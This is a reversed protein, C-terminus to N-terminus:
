ILSAAAAAVQAKKSKKGKGKGGKSSTKASAEANTDPSFGTSARGFMKGLQSEAPSRPSEAPSRRPKKTPSSTTAPATEEVAKKKLRAKQTVVAPAAAEVTAEKTTSTKAAGASSTGGGGAAPVSPIKGATREAPLPPSAADSGAGTSETEAVEVQVQVEQPASVAAEEEINVADLLETDAESEKSADLELPRMKALEPQSEMVQELIGKVKSMALNNVKTIQDQHKVMEAQMGEVEAVAQTATTRAAALMSAELIEKFQAQMEATGGMAALKGKAEDLDSESLGVDALKTKARELIQIFAEKFAIQASASETFTNELAKIMKLQPLVMVQVAAHVQTDVQDRISDRVMGRIKEETIPEPTNLIQEDFQKRLRGMDDCVSQFAVPSNDVSAAETFNADVMVESDQFPSDPEPDNRIDYNSRPFEASPNGNSRMASRPYTKGSAAASQDGFTVGRSHSSAGISSQGSNVYPSGKSSSGGGSGGTGAGGRSNSNSGGGGGGGQRVAKKPLKLELRCAQGGNAIGFMSFFHPPVKFLSECNATFFAMTNGNQNTYIDVVTDAVDFKPPITWGGRKAVRSQRGDVDEWLFQYAGQLALRIEKEDVDKRVNFIVAKKCADEEDRNKLSEHFAKLRSNNDEEKGFVVKDEISDESFSIKGEELMDGIYGELESARMSNVFVEYASKMSFRVSVNHAKADKFMGRLEHEMALGLHQAEKCAESTSPAFKPVISGISKGDAGQLPDVLLFSKKGFLGDLLTHELALHIHSGMSFGPPVSALSHGAMPKVGIYTWKLEGGFKLFLPQTSKVFMLQKEWHSNLRDIITQFDDPVFGFMKMITCGEGKLEDCIPQANNQFRSMIPPIFESISSLTGVSAVEVEGLFFFNVRLAFLRVRARAPEEREREGM